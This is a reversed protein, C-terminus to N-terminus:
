VVWVIRLGLTTVAGTSFSRTSRSPSYAFREPPRKGLSRCIFERSSTWTILGVLVPNSSAVVAQIALIPRPTPKTQAMGGIGIRKVGALADLKALGAFRDESVPGLAGLGVAHDVTIQAHLVDLGALDGLLRGPFVTWDDSRAPETRLDATDPKGSTAM